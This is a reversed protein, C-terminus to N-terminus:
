GLNYQEISTWLGGREERKERKLGKEEIGLGMEMECVGLNTAADKGAKNVAIDSLLRSCLRGLTIEFRATAKSGLFDSTLFITSHSELM